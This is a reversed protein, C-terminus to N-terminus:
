QHYFYALENKGDIAGMLDRHSSMPVGAQRCAGKLLRKKVM